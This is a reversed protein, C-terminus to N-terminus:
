FKREKEMRQLCQLPTEGKKMEYGCGLVGGKWSGKKKGVEKDFDVDITKSIKSFINTWKFWRPRWEREVISLTANVTSKDYNDVYPHTEKYKNEELWDYCGILNNKWELKNKKTEHFWDYGDKMKTSTRVWQLAWPLDIHRRKKGWCFWIENIFGGNTYTNCGYEPNESENDMGTNYPLRLYINGWGFFLFFISLLLFWLSFFPLVVALLSTINTNFQPRPDFYGWKELQIRFPTQKDRKPYFSLRRDYYETDKETFKFQIM